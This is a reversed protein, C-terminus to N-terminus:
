LYSTKLDYFSTVSGGPAAVLATTVAFVLAFASAAVQAKRMGRHSGVASAEEVDSNSDPLVAHRKAIPNHEQQDPQHRDRREPRHERAPLRQRGDSNVGQEDA